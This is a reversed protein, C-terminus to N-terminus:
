LEEYIWPCRGQMSTSLSNHRKGSVSYLFHANFMYIIQAIMRLYKLIEQDFKLIWRWLFTNWIKASSVSDQVKIKVQGQTAPATWEDGKYNMSEYIWQTMRENLIKLVSDMGFWLLQPASIKLSYM